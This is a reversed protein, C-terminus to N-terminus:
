QKATKPLGRESPDATGTGTRAGESRDRKAQLETDAASGSTPDKGMKTTHPIDQRAKSDVRDSSSTPPAVPAETASPASSNMRDTATQTATETTPMATDVPIVTTNSSSMAPPADNRVEAKKSCAGLELGAGLILGTTIAIKKFQM